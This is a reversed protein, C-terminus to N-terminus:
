KEVFKSDDKMYYAIIELVEGTTPKQYFKGGALSELQEKGGNDWSCNILTRLNREVSEWSVDYKEAIQHYIGTVRLLSNDNEMVIRVGERLERYGQYRRSFRCHRLVRDIDKEM